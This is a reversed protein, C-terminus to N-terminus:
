QTIILEVRRNQQRGAPTKNTAVPEDKGKGVASIKDAPLGQNVLYERVAEARKESLVQNKDEGGVSDTHGEVSIKVNNDARLQAAIKSLTSKAGPKLATKGTDFFIGPLTVVIGRQTAKTAALKALEAEMRARRADADREALQSRTRELEAQMQQNAASAQQIQQQAASAQQQAAQAQQQAQEAAQKAAVAAQQAEAAQQRLAQAQAEADARRHQADLIATQAQRDIDARRNIDEQRDRRLQDLQAQRRILDAQRQSLVDASMSGARQAADLDARLADVEASIGQEDLREREQAARLAIQADEVQRRLADVAAPDTSSAIASEYQSTLQDLRQEAAIRAERDTTIRTDQARRSEDIQQRLRDLEAAQAQRNAQEAALQRQLDAEAREAQERQAREAAASRESEAQALRTRELQLTPLYRGSEAARALYYARRAMMESIFALHDATESNNNARVIKHASELDQEAVRVDACGNQADNTSVVSVTSTPTAVTEGTINSYAVHYTKKDKDWGCVSNAQMVAAEAFHIRESSNTGRTYAMNPSEDQVALDSHGGLRNVDAQLGRIASNTGLWRAKALAARAAWLAEDARLRAQERTSEKAANWNEQAYKLRWGADDYLTKATVQAGAQDAAALAQQAQLLTNLQGQALENSANKQGWAPIALLLALILTLRRM